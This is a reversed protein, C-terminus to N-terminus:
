VVYAFVVGVVVTLGAAVALLDKHWGRWSLFELMLLRLGGTLHAALLIVLGGEALRVLPADTWVLFEDLQAADQLAMALVWFHLPLFVALVIGSVRHVLFAWWAPHNRARWDNKMCFGGMGRARGPIGSGLHVAYDRHQDQIGALGDM